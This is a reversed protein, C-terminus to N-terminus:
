ATPVGWGLTDGVTVGHADFFGANAEVAGRYPVHPGYTPCPDATCPTMEDIEIIRGQEDWFAISLPILTDKMWFSVTTPAGFLFAMGDSPGLSTRGMLGEEQEAETIALEVLLRVPGDATRITLTQPAHPSPSVTSGPGRHCASLCILLAVAIVPRRSM